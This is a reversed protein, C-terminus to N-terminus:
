AARRRRARIRELTKAPRSLQRRATVPAIILYSVLGVAVLPEALLLAFSPASLQHAPLVLLSAVALQSCAAIAAATGVVVRVPLEDLEPLVLTRSLPGTPAGAFRHAVQISSLAFLVLSSVAIVLVGFIEGM